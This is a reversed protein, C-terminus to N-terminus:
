EVPLLICTETEASLTGPYATGYCELQQAQFLLRHGSKPLWTQYAYDLSLGLEEYRGKHAFQAYRHPPITKTAVVPDSIEPSKVEVAAMYLQASGHMAKTYTTIGIHNLPEIRNEVNALNNGFTDWLELIADPEDRTLTMVGAVRLVERENLSARRHAGTHIYALHRPTRRSMLRRRDLAGERRWRSPQIDFMRKFARSFTEPNSFQYDLAIDIIKAKTCLLERAAESLRRRMLYDYPTHHVAQSFLRCFHFLSYQAADAVDAVRIAHKLNSEIFQIAQYISDVNSM